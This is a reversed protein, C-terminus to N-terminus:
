MLSSRLTIYVDSLWLSVFCAFLCIYPLCLLEYLSHTSKCCNTCVWMVEREQPHSKTDDHRDCWIRTAPNRTMRSWQVIELNQHKFGLWSNPLTFLLQVLLFIANVILMPLNHCLKLYWLWYHYLTGDMCTLYLMLLKDYNCHGWITHCWTTLTPPELLKSSGPWWVYVIVHCTVAAHLSCTCMIM